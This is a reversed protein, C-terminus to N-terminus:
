EHDDREIEDRTAWKPKCGPFSSADAFIPCDAGPEDVGFDGDKVGFGCDMCGSCKIYGVTEGNHVCTGINRGSGIKWEWKNKAPDGVAKKTEAVALGKAVGIMLCYHNMIGGWDM